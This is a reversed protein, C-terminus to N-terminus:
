SPSSPSSPRQRRPSVLHSNETRRSAQRRYPAPRCASRMSTTGQEPPRLTLSRHPASFPFIESFSFIFEEEVKRDVLTLLCVEFPSDQPRQPHSRIRCIPTSSHMIRCYIPVLWVPTIISISTPVILLDAGQIEVVTSSMQIGATVCRKGRDPWDGETQLYKSTLRRECTASNEIRHWLITSVTM